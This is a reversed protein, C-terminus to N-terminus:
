VAWVLPAPVGNVKLFKPLFHDGLSGMGVHPPRLLANRVTPADPPVSMAGGVATWYILSSMQLTGLPGRSFRQLYRLNLIQMVAPRCVWLM